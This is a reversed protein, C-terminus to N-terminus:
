RGATLRRRSSVWTLALLGLAVLPMSGPAPAQSPPIQQNQTADIGSVKFADSYGSLGGAIILYRGEATSTGLNNNRTGVGGTDPNLVLQTFTGFGSPAVPVGSGNFSVSTFDIAGTGGLWADANVAGGTTPCSDTASDALQPIVCTWGLSFSSVDWNDSGFDIVLIDNVGRNDIAHQPSGTETASTQKTNTIGIGGSYMAIQAAVWTGSDDPSSTTPPTNDNGTPNVVQTSYATM